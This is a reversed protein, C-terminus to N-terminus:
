VNLKRILNIKKSNGWFSMPEFGSYPYYGLNLKLLYSKEELYNEVLKKISISKGSCCNIAQNLYIKQFCILIINEIVKNIHLYDRTQEGGSMNFEKDKNKIAQDLLFILSKRSQGEGYMYFLRIWKFDFNYQKQLEQTFKRLTDKAIAYSNSPQTNMDESLEGNIMGYEFCTGTINIDKLGNKTLNKLFIYHNPLNKEIHILDNYNPLGDWALHILKDPRNFKQYLDEYSKDDIDYEIYQV